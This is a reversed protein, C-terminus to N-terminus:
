TCGPSSHHDNGKIESSWANTLTMMPTHIHHSRPEPLGSGGKSDEALCAVALLAWSLTLYSHDASDGLPNSVLHILSHHLSRTLFSPVLMTLSLSWMPCTSHPAEGRLCHVKFEGGEGELAVRSWFSLHYSGQKGAKGLHTHPLPLDYDSWSYMAM